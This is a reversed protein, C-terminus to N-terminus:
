SIRSVIKLWSIILELENLCRRLYEVPGFYLKKAKRKKRDVNPHIVIIKSICVFWM